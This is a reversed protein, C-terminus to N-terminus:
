EDSRIERQTPGDGFYKNYLNESFNKFRDITAGFSDLAPRVDVNFAPVGPEEDPLSYYDIVYRVDNGCRNVVWDHRDFPKIGGFWSLFWAKPTLDKPRGRFSTLRVDKCDCHYKNEWRLVEFWSAENLFNHIEVMTDIENEPTEWGKRKLANYFQQSSPYEWVKSEAGQLRPITSNTRDTSLDISQGEAKTQPLTPMQNDKNINLAMLQEKTVNEAHKCPNKEMSSATSTRFPSDEAPKATVAAQHHPCSKPPVADTQPARVTVGTPESIREPADAITIPQGHVHNLSGMLMPHNKVYAEIQEPSMNKHDVPCRSLNPLEAGDVTPISSM